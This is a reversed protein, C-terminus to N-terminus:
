ARLPAKANPSKTNDAAPWRSEQPPVPTQKGTIREITMSYLTIVDLQPFFGGVRSPDNPYYKAMLQLFFEHKTEPEEIIRAEGFAIVSQYEITTDCPYQGYPFVEGAVDIEFCVQPNAQINSKLHGEAHTGHFWVRERWWVYLLPCVYPWGDKGISGIRACYGSLLMEAVQQEPM